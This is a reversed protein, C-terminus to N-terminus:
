QPGGVADAFFFARNTRQVARPGRHRYQREFFEGARLPSILGAFGDASDDDSTELEEMSFNDKTSADESQADLSAELLRKIASDANPIGARQAVIRAIRNEFEDAKGHISREVFGTNRTKGLLMEEPHM